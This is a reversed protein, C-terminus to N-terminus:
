YKKLIWSSMMLIRTSSIYIIEELENVQRQDGTSFTEENVHEVVNELGGGLRIKSPIFEKHAGGRRFLIENHKSQVIRDLVKLADQYDEMGYTNSRKALDKVRLLEPGMVCM